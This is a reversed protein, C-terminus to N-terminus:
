NTKTWSKGELGLAEMVLARSEKSLRRLEYRVRDRLERHKPHGSMRRMFSLIDGLRKLAQSERPLGYNWVGRYIANSKREMDIM